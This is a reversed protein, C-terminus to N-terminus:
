LCHVYKIFPDDPTLKYAKLYSNSILSALVTSKSFVFWNIATAYKQSVLYHTGLLVALPLCSPDKQNSSLVVNRKHWVQESARLLVRFVNLDRWEYQM